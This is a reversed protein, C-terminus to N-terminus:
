ILNKAEESRRKKAEESRRKKAEESRRKKAEEQSITLDFCPKHPLSFFCCSNILLEHNKFVIPTFL